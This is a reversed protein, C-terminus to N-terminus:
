PLKSEVPKVEPVYLFHKEFDTINQLKGNDYLVFDSKELDRAPNGEPDVVYVQVLKLTVIVEHQLLEQATKTQASLSPWVSTSTQLFFMFVFVFITRLFLLNV